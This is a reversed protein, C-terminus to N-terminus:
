NMSSVDRIQDNRDLELWLSGLSQGGSYRAQPVWRYAPLDEEQELSVPGLDERDDDVIESRADVSGQSESEVDEEVDEGLLGQGDEKQGGTHGGDEKEKDSESEVSEDDVIDMSDVGLGARDIENKVKRRFRMRPVNAVLWRVPMRKRGDPDDVVPPDNIFSAYHKKDYQLRQAQSKCGEKEGLANQWSQAIPNSQRRELDALDVWVKGIRECNAIM